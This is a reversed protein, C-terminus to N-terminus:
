DDRVAEAVPISGVYRAPAWAALAGVTMLILPVAVLVTSDAASVGLLVSQGLANTAVMGLSTGVAGGVALQAVNGRLATWTVRLPTAGLAARIGLERTRRRVSYAMMGALGVAALLLAALGIAIFLVGFARETRRMDSILLDLPLAEYLAVDANVVAGIRPLERVLAPPDTTRVVLAMSHTPHQAFPLYIGEAPDGQETSVGLHPVVGVITVDVPEGAGGDIVFRAGVPDRGNLYLESFPTNVIAVAPADDNDRATFDRGQLVPSGLAAFYDPTIVNQHVLPRAEPRDYVVGDLAVRRLGSWVDPLHSAAAAHSVGPQAAVRTLMADMHTRIAQTDDFRDGRLTWRATAISAADYESGAGLSLVGKTAVGAVILLCVSLAIEVFLLGRSVWGIRFTAGRGGELLARQPDMRLAQLAPMLGAAVTAAVMCVATFLLVSGALDFSVWFPLFPELQRALAAVGLRSLMLGVIGGPIAIWAAEALQELALRGGGAGLAARVAVEQTRATARALLLNTVNVCAIILVFMFLLTMVRLILREDDDIMASAYGRARYGVGETWDPFQEHVAAAASELDANVQALTVGPARRGFVGVLPHSADTVSPQFPTWLQQRDPFQFGPEMVGIITHPVGDLRIAAGVVDDRGALRAQWFDDSVLVVREAGSVADDPTFDRGRAPTVGLLGFMNPTVRAGSRQEPLGGTGAVDYRTKEHGAIGTLSRQRDRLAAFWRGDMLLLGSSFRPNTAGIHVLGEPAPVPLERLAGNAITFMTTPAAIGLGLAIVASAFLIPSRLLSRLSIRFAYPLRM